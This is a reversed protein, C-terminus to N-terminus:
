DFGPMGDHNSTALLRIITTVQAPGPLATHQSLLRSFSGSSGDLPEMETVLTSKDKHFPVRSIESGAATNKGGERWRESVMKKTQEALEEKEKLGM